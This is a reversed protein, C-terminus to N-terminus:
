NNFVNFDELFNFFISHETMRQVEEYEMEEKEINNQIIMGLWTKIDEICLLNYIYSM